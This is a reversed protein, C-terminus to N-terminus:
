MKSTSCGWFHLWLFTHFYFNLNIKVYFILSLFFTELIKWTFDYKLSRKRNSSNQKANKNKKNVTEWLKNIRKM